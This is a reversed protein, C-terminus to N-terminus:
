PQIGLVQWFEPFSKSVVHSNKVGIDFGKLKLLGAAFAMRHDHDPDFEFSTTKVAHGKGVIHFAKEKPSCLIHAKELLEKTKALRDSEKFALHAAGRLVSEGKAFACLVALCPFLDPANDLNIDIPKIEAPMQINLQGASFQVSVGMKKLIDIFIFDPQLSKEGANLITTKGTLAGAVAIAFASSYDPETELVPATIKQRAPVKWFDNNRQIQMGLSEAMLVSMEWYSQSLGGKMEFELDFDLNWSSLLLGTAFQSSTERHIRLPILPKKWGQGSIIIQDKQIECSVSLQELLYTLEQHPRRMLAPQGKLKFSGAERSARMGMFRLVTGAEGCDIDTKRILSVVARKMNKVDDCQSDGIIKLDPFFSQVLLARNMMSKSAPISVQFSKTIM